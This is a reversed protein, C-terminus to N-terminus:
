KKPAGKSKLFKKLKSGRALQYVTRGDSTRAKIDAGNELLLNCLEIDNKSHNVAAHLPTEGSMSKQNVDIGRKILAEAIVYSEAECALHLLNENRSSNFNTPAGKSLLTNFMKINQGRIAGALYEPDNVGAGKNMLTEVVNTKNSVIANKMGNNPDAGFDILTIVLQENGARAATSILEPDSASAGKSLLLKVMQDNGTAVAERIGDAANSGKNLLMEVLPLNNKKVASQLLQPDMVSGGNQILLEVMQVNATNVATRMLSPDLATAGNTLLIRSLEINGKKVPYHILKPNVVKAGGKILFEALKYNDTRVAHSLYSTDTATAGYKMALQSFILDNNLVATKMAMNADGKNALLLETRPQDKALVAKELYPTANAGLKLATEAMGLDNTGEMAEKLVFDAKGGYRQVLEMVIMKEGKRAAYATAIDVNAGKSVCLTLFTTREKAICYDLAKQPNIGNDMALIAIEANNNDVAREFPTNDKCTAGFNILSRFTAADNMQAAKALGPTFDARYTSLALMMQQNKSEVAAEVVGKSNPDAGAVLMAQASQVDGAKVAYYLGTYGAADLAKQNAKAGILLNIIDNRKNKAAITLPIDGSTNAADPSAGKAMLDAVKNRDGLTVAATLQTHGNADVANINPIGTDQAPSIKALLFLPFFLMYIKKM